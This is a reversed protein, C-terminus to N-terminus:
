GGLAKQSNHIFMNIYGNVLGSCILKDDLIMVEEFKDNQAYHYILLCLFDLPAEQVDDVHHNPKWPTFQNVYSYTQHM